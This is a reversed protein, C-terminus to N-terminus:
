QKRKYSAALHKETQHSRWYHDARLLVGVLWDKGVPNASHVYWRPPQHQGAQAMGLIALAVQRTDGGAGLDHDFSMETVYM